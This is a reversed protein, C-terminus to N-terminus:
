VVEQLNPVYSSRPPTQDESDPYRIEKRQQKKQVCSSLLSIGVAVVVVVLLWDVVWRTEHPGLM